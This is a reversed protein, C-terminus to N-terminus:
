KGQYGWVVDHKDHNMEKDSWDNDWGQITQQHGRCYINDASRVASFARKGIQTVTSPIIIREISTLAFAYNGIKKLGENLIVTKLNTCMAFASDDIVEVTSPLILTEIDAGKFAVKNIVKIGEQIHLTRAKKGRQATLNNKMYKGGKSAVSYIWKDLPM